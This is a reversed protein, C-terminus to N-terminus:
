LTNEFYLVSSLISYFDIWWIVDLQVIRAPFVGARIDARANPRIMKM